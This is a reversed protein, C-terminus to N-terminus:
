HRKAPEFIQVGSGAGAVDRSQARDRRFQWRKGGFSATPDAARRDDATTRTGGAAEYTLHAKAAMPLCKVAVGGLFLFLVAPFFSFALLSVPHPNEKDPAVRLRDNPSTGDPPVPLDSTVAALATRSRGPAHLTLYLYIDEAEDASLYGFVPMRGRCLLPPAGMLVPAGQTVKRVFEPLDKRRTLTSLPPIAGELMQEPSPNAGTAAHCIHCTSKAIHEGVRERSETLTLHGGESGSVGALQNLYAMLVHIEAESLHLLPPMNEGGQHLRLLLAKRSQKAMEDANARSVDMGVRKMREMVLAVSTARIPNIVSNIEPPAGLGFEGHCGQCNLRYLDAGHLTVKQPDLILPLLSESGQMEVDPRTPAPGLRGTKGMSTENFSRALHNIWSEGEVETVPPNQAPLRCGALFVGAIVFRLLKHM